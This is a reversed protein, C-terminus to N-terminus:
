AGETQMAPPTSSWPERIPVNDSTGTVAPARLLGTDSDVTLTQSRGQQASGLFTREETWQLRDSCLGLVRLLHGPRLGFFCRSDGLHTSTSGPARHCGFLVVKVM